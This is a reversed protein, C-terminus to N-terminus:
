DDDHHHGDDEPGGLAVGAELMMRELASPGGKSESMYAREGTYDDLVTSAIGERDQWGNAPGPLDGGGSQAMQARTGLTMANFEEFYRKRHARKKKNVEEQMRAIEENRRLEDAFQEELIRQKEREQAVV